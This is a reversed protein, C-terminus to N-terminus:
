SGCSAWEVMTTHAEALAYDIDASTSLPVRGEKFGELRAMEVM